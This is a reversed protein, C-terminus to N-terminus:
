SVLDIQQVTGARGDEFLFMGTSRIVANTKNTENKLSFETDANMLNIAGVGAEKLSLLRDGAPDSVWVKLKDFIDSRIKRFLRIRLRVLKSGLVLLFKM